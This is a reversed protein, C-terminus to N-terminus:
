ASGHSVHIYANGYTNWAQYEPHGFIIWRYTIYLGGSDYHHRLANIPRYIAVVNRAVIAVVMLIAAPMAFATAPVPFVTVTAIMIILKDRYRALDKTTAARTAAM